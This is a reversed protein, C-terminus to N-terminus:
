DFILMLMENPLKRIPAALNRLKAEYVKLRRKRSSLAAVQLQLRTIESEYDQYDKDLLSLIEDIEPRTTPDYDARINDKM